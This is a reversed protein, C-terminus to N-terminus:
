ATMASVMPATDTIQDFRVVQGDRVRYVHALDVRMPKGTGTHKGSYSGLVVVTDGSVIFEDIQARFDSWLRDNGGLIGPIVQDPGRRRAGGPFGACQNWEVDHALLARLAGEDKAGFADYLDRIVKEPTM